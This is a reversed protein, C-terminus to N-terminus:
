DIDNIDTNATNVPNNQNLISTPDNIMMFMMMYPLFKNITKNTLNEVNIENLAGETISRNSNLYKNITHQLDQVQLELTILSINIDNIKNKHNQTIHDQINSRRELKNISTTLKRRIKNIRTKMEHNEM